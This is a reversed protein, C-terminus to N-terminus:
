GTTPDKVEVSLIEIVLPEAQRGRGEAEGESRTILVDITRKLGPQSGEGIGDFWVGNGFDRQTAQKAERQYFSRRTAFLATEEIRVYSVNLTDLRVGPAKNGVRAQWDVQFAAVPAADPHLKFPLNKLATSKRGSENLAAAHFRICLDKFTEFSTQLWDYSSLDEPSTPTQKAEPRRAPRQKRPMMKVVALFGPDAVGLEPLKAAATLGLPGEQWNANLAKYLRSRIEDNPVTSALSILQASNELSEIGDLREAVTSLLNAHWLARILDYPLGPDASSGEAFAKASATDAPAPQAARRAPQRDGGRSGEEMGSGMNMDEMGGYMDEEMGMDMDPPPEMMDEMGGYMDEEMGENMGEEMGMGSGRGTMGPRRSGSAPPKQGFAVWPADGAPAGPQQMQPLNVMSPLEKQQATSIGLIRGLASASYTTFYTAFEDKLEQGTEHRGYLGIQAAVNRPNSVMIMGVLPDRLEVAPTGFLYKTLEVRLRMSASKEILPLTTARLMEATVTEAKEPESTKEESPERPDSQAAAPSESGEETPLRFTEPVTLARYLVAENALCPNDVLAKLAASTAM